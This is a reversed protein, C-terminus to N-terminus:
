MVGALLEEMTKMLVAHDVPKSFYRNCGASLCRDRDSAFAHATVAIIPVRSFRPIKRIDTV